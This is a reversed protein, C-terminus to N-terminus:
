RLDRFLWCTSSGGKVDLCYTVSTVCVDTFLSRLQSVNFNSRGVAHGLDCLQYINQM